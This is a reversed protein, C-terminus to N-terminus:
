DLLPSAVRTRKSDMAPNVLTEEVGLLAAVVGSMGILPSALGPSALAVAGASVVAAGLVILAFLSAGLLSAGWACELYPHQMFYDADDKLGAKAAADVGQTGREAALFGVVCAAILAYSVWPLRSVHSGAQRQTPSM